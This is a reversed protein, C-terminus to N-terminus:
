YARGTRYVVTPEVGMLRLSAALSEAEEPSAFAGAFLRATGDGQDLAYGPIGRGAMEELLGPAAERPVDRQLLLAFPRAVRAGADLPLLGRTRLAVLASDAAAPDAFAGVLVHYWRASAGPAGVPSVVVGAVSDALRAAELRADDEVSTLLVQITWAAASASDEPNAVPASALPAAGDETESEAVATGAAAGEVTSDDEPKARGVWVAGVAALALLAAGVGLRRAWAPTESRQQRREVVSSVTPAVPRPPRAAAIVPWSAPAPTDGVLVAGETAAVLTDLGAAARPAVLLLLAGEQRFGNALKAWRPSRLIEETIADSGSPLVFLNGLEDIPAAIKNMSVGYLFSDAIGHPAEGEVYYQLPALDGALDAM